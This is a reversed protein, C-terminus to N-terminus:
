APANTAGPQRFSTTVRSGHRRRRRAPATGASGSPGAGAGSLSVRSRAARRGDGAAEAEAALHYCAGAVLAPPVSEATSRHVIREYREKATSSRGLARAAAAALYDLEAAIAPTRSVAADYLSCIALALEHEGGRVACRVIAVAAPWTVPMGLVWSARPGDARLRALWLRALAIPATTHPTTGLRTQAIREADVQSTTVVELALDAVPGRRLWDAISAIPTPDNAQALQPVTRGSCALLRAVLPDGAWLEARVPMTHPVAPHPQFVALAAHALQWADAALELDPPVPPIAPSLTLTAISVHHRDLYLQSALNRVVTLDSTADLGVLVTAACRSERLADTLRTIDLTRDVREMGPAAITQGAAMDLGAHAVHPRGAALQADAWDTWRESSPESSVAASFSEIAADIRGQERLILGEAHSDWPSTPSAAVPPPVVGLAQLPREWDLHSYGWYLSLNNRLRSTKRPLEVDRGPAVPCVGALLQRWFGPNFFADYVPVFRRSTPREDATALRIRSDSLFTAAQGFYEAEYVACSSIGCVETVAPNCLLAYLNQDIVRIRDDSRALARLCALVRATERAYPHPKVYVVAHREVFATLDAAYDEISCFRGDRVLAKDIGHQATFLGADPVLDAPAPRRLGARHLAAQLLVAEDPYRHAQLVSFMEPVNTRIGFCVDDLFRAPHLIFDVYPVGLRDFLRTQFASMTNGIVMAGAFFSALYSSAPESITEAAELAAWHEVSASMGNLAYFHTADFGSVPDDWSVIALTSAPSALSVQYRLLDALWRTEMAMKPRGEFTTQLIDGTFVIRELLTRRSM